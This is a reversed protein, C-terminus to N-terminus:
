YGDAEALAIFPDTDPFMHPQQQVPPAHAHAIFHPSSAWLPLLQPSVCSGASPVAPIPLVRVWGQCSFSHSKSFGAVQLRSPGSSVSWSSPPPPNFPTCLHYSYSVSSNSPRQTIQSWVKNPYGGPFLDMVWAHDRGLPTVM